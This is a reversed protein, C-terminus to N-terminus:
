VAAPNAAQTACFSKLCHRANCTLVCDVTRCLLGRFASSSNRLDFTHAHSLIDMLYGSGSDGTLQARRGVRCAIQGGGGWRVDQRDTQDDPRGKCAIEHWKSTYFPACSCPSPSLRCALAGYSATLSAASRSLLTLLARCIRCPCTKM